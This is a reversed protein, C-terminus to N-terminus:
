YWNSGKLYCNVVCNSVKLQILKIYISTHGFADAVWKSMMVGVMVPLVYEYRRNANPARPEAKIHRFYPDRTKTDPIPDFRQGRKRRICTYETICSEPYTDRTCRRSERFGALPRPNRYRTDPIPNRNWGVPVDECGGHRAARVQSRPKSNRNRTVM